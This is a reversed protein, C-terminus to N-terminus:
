ARVRTLVWTAPDLHHTGGAHGGRGRVQGLLEVRLTGLTRLKLPHRRIGCPRARAQYRQHLAVTDLSFRGGNWTTAAASAIAIRSAAAVQGFFGRTTKWMIVTDRTRAPEM